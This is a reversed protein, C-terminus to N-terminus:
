KTEELYLTTYNTVIRNIRNSYSTSCENFFEVVEEIELVEISKKFINLSITIGSETAYEFVAQKANKAQYTSAVLNRDIIIYNEINTNM